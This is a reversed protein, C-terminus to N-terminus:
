LVSDHIWRLYPTHAHAIKVAIIEPLEYPHEKLVATKLANFRATTTKILLLTERDGRIKGQWRYHSHVAPLRTVCAALRAKVLAQALTRAQRPPCTVFVMLAASKM